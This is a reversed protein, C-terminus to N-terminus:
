NAETGPSWRFRAGAMVYFGPAPYDPLVFYQRNLLNKLQLTFTLLHVEYDLSVNLVHYDGLRNRGDNDAFLDSVYKGYILARFRRLGYGVLYKFQYKPNFATLQDPNLYNASLMIQLGPLPRMQWSGELGWQRAKGSNAFIVPPPGAPNGVLQILNTIHNQYYTFKISSVGFPIYETGLEYSSVEEPNLSSNSPPFLYLEQLTPLRFGQNYAAFLKWRSTPLLSIGLTPIWRRINLSAYQYRVGGKLNIKPHPRYFGVFYGGFSNIRHLDPRPPALPFVVNRAKGGYQLLDMGWSLHLKPSYSYHQYSSFGYTFDHSEFGDYFRHHGLNSYLHFSQKVRKWSGALSADVMGRRIRAYSGLEAVDAGMSPDDFQYPVYRGELNFSWTKGIKHEYTGSVSWSEFGSSDIHGSSIQHQLTFGAGSAGRHLNAAATQTFTNFSGANAALTVRNAAPRSTILNIVGAMAGSGFIASAPGKIVEIRDIDNLGYVDPLPHGFIGMFDPRGNILVLAQSNPKGGMGRLFISGSGAPGLGFGLVKKETVFAAPSLLDVLELASYNAMDRFKRVPILDVSNTVSKLSVEYRNAVVVISDGWAYTHVSDAPQSYVPYSVAIFTLVFILVKM